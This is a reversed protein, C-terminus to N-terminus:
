TVSKTSKDPIAAAESWKSFHDTIAVIYKNGSTTELLPGIIDIGALSWIKAPVPIPNLSPAEKSVISNSVICKPYAKVYEQVDTKMLCKWYYRQSIKRFTKDRGFKGGTAPNDRCAKLNSPVRTKVIVEKDGQFLTGSDSRFPKATQRFQSKANVRKAPDLDYIHQPYKQDASTYFNLIQNYLNDDM